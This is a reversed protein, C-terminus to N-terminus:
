RTRAVKDRNVPHIQTSRLGSLDAYIDPLYEARRVCRCNGYCDWGPYPGVGIQFYQQHRPRCNPCVYYDDRTFWVDVYGPTANEGQGAFYAGWGIGGYQRARAALAIDSMPRGGVQRAALATAFRQLYPWQTALKDEVIGQVRVGPMRGAGVVAMQRTYNALATQMTRQWAAITVAGSRVLTATRTVAGEFHSRLLKRGSTRLVKSIPRTPSSRLLLLVLAFATIWDDHQARLQADTAAPLPLDENDLEGADFRALVLRAEDLTIAKRRVLDSLLASLEARTM